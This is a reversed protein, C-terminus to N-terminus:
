KDGANAKAPVTNQKEEGSYANLYEGYTARKGDTVKEIAPAPAAIGAKILRDCYGPQIGLRATLEAEDIEIVDGPKCINCVDKVRPVGTADREIVKYIFGPPTVAKLILLKTIAM